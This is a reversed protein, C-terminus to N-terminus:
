AATRIRDVNSAFRIVLEQDANHRGYWTRELLRLNEDFLGLLEPIAHARRRLENEYDRNSKFHAIGVLNRQALNALTALYYARMALRYDGKEMLQRALSTWGDEPLDDARIGEDNIDPIHTLSTAVATAARAARRRSRIVLVVLLIGAGAILIFLLLSSRMWNFGAKPGKDSRFIWRIIREVTELVWNIADRIAQSVREFFRTVVGKEEEDTKEPLKWDYKSQQLVEDIQHDLQAPSVEQAAQAAQLTPCFALGIALALLVAIRKPTADFQRLDTKLDEGTQLSEGYFCRLVYICKLIPDVCLYTLGVLIGAFTGNLMAMPNRSFATEIGMLTRLLSPGVIAVLSWNLLVCLAFLLGLGLATHNQLIWLSSQKSAKEVLKRIGVSESDALVTVNQYFSYVWGFPVVLVIALPILFLGTAHIAIQPVLVRLHGLADWAPPEKMALEARIRATFSAQCLKMWFFLATIALSAGVLHQSARASRSMDVWFYLFGLVFPVTGIYYTALTPLTASRFLHAAEELIELGSKGEQRRTARKM